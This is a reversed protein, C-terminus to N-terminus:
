KLDKEQLIVYVKRKSKVYTTRTGSRAPMVNEFQVEMIIRGNEEISGKIIQASRNYLNPKNKLLDLFDKFMMAHQPSKAKRLAQEYEATDKGAPAEDEPGKITDTPELQEVIRAKRIPRPTVKKKM